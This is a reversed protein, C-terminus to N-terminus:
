SLSVLRNLKTIEGFSVILRAFPGKFCRQIREFSCAPCQVIPLVQSHKDQQLVFSLPISGVIDIDITPRVSRNLDPIQLVLLLNGIIWHWLLVKHVRIANHLIITIKLNNAVFAFQRKILSFILHKAFFLSLQWQTTVAMVFIALLSSLESLDLLRSVMKAIIIVLLRCLRTFQLDFCERLRVWINLGVSRGM